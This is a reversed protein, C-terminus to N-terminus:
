ICSINQLRFKLLALKYLIISQVFMCLTVSYPLSALPESVLHNNTQGATVDKFKYCETWIIYINNPLIKPFGYNEINVM